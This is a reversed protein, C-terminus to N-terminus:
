DRTQEEGRAISNELRRNERRLYNVLNELQGIREQADYLPRSTLDGVGYEQAVQERVARDHAALWAAWDAHADAESLGLGGMVHAYGITYLDRAVMDPTPGMPEDIIATEIDSM